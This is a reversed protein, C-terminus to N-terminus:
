SGTDRLATREIRVHIKTSVHRPHSPLASPKDVATGRSGIAAGPATSRPHHPSPPRPDSVEPPLPGRRQVTGGTLLCGLSCVSLCVVLM